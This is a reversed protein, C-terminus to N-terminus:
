AKIEKDQGPAPQRLADAQAALVARVFFALDQAFYLRLPPQLLFDQALTRYFILGMRGDPGRAPSDNKKYGEAEAGAMVHRYPQLAPESLDVPDPLSHPFWFCVNVKFVNLEVRFHLAGGAQSVVYDACCGNQTVQVELPVLAGTRIAQPIDSALVQQTLERLKRDSNQGFVVALVLLLVPLGVSLLPVASKALEGDRQVLSVVLMGIASGIAVVVLLMVLVRAWLPLTLLKFWRVLENSAVPSIDESESM